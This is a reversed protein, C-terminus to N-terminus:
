SMQWVVNKPIHSIAESICILLSFHFGIPVQGYTNYSFFLGLKQYNNIFSGKVIKDIDLIPAGNFFYYNPSTILKTAYLDFRSLPSTVPISLEFLNEINQAPTVTTYQPYDSVRYLSLKAVQQSYTNNFAEWGETDLGTGWHGFISLRYFKDDDLQLDGLNGADASPDLGGFPYSLYHKWVSSTNATPFKIEGRYIKEIIRTGAIPKRSYTNFIADNIDVNVSEGLNEIEGIKEISNSGFSFFNKDGTYSLILKDDSNIGKTFIYLDYLPDFDNPLEWGDGRNILPFLNTGNSDTSIWVQVGSPRNVLKIIRVGSLNIRMGLTYEINTPIDFTKYVLNGNKM